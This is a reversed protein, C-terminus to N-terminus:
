LKIMDMFQFYIRGIDVFYGTIRIATLNGPEMLYKRNDIQVEQTLDRAGARCM